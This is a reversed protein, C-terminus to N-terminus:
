SLTAVSISTICEYLLIIELELSFLSQFLNHVITEFTGTSGSVM